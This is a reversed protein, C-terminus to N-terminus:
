VGPEIRVRISPAESLRELREGLAGIIVDKEAIEPTLEAAAEMRGNHCGLEYGLYLGLCLVGIVVLGFILILLGNIKENDM